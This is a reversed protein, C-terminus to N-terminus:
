RSTPRRRAKAYSFVLAPDHPSGRMAKDINEVSKDFEGLRQYDYGLNGAADANSPDLALAREHEAVAEEARGQALLIM